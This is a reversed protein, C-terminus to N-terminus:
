EELMGLRYLDLEYTNSVTVEELDEESMTALIDREVLTLAKGRVLIKCTNITEIMAQVIM